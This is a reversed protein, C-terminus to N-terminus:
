VQYLRGGIVQWLRMRAKVSQIKRRVFGLFFHEVFESLCYFFSTSESHFLSGVWFLISSFLIEMAM